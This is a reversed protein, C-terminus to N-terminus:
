NNDFNSKNLNYYLILLFNFAIVNLKANADNILKQFKM